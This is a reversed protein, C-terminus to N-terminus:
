FDIKNQDHENPILWECMVSFPDGSVWHNMQCPIVWNFPIFNVGSDQSTSNTAFALDSITERFM